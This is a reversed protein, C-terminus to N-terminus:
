PGKQNQSNGAGTEYVALYVAVVERKQFLSIDLNDATISLEYRVSFLTNYLWIARVHTPIQALYETKTLVKFAFRFENVFNLVLEFFSSEIFNTRHCDRHEWATPYACTSVSPRCFSPLRCNKVLQNGFAGTLLELTM